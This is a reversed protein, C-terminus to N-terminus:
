GKAKRPKPPAQIGHLLIDTLMRSYRQPDRAFGVDRFHKLVDQSQFFFVNAGILLTAVMAPDLAARLEGRQQATRLIEVLRAFNDGFVKEALERGRKEGDTLIERLILRSVGAHQLLNTLQSHAFDGLRQPFPDTEAGLYQLREASDRCAHRLAALYLAQKSAFHHFINAKSVGARAAIATISTAEFGHTAFLTEAAELIRQVTDAAARPLSVTAAARVM